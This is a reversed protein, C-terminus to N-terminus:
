ISSDGILREFLEQPMPRLAIPGNAKLQADSLVSGDANIGCGDYFPVVIVMTPADVRAFLYARFEVGEHPYPFRTNIALNRGAEPQLVPFLPAMSWKGETVSTQLYHGVEVPDACNEDARADWGGFSLGLALVGATVLGKWYKIDKFM